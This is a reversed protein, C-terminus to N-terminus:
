VILLLTVITGIWSCRSCPAWFRSISNTNFIIHIVIITNLMYIKWVYIQLKVLEETKQLYKAFIQHMYVTKPIKSPENPLWLLPLEWFSIWPSLKSISIWYIWNLALAVLHKDIFFKIVKLLNSYRFKIFIYTVQTFRDSSIYCVQEINSLQIYTQFSANRYVIQNKVLLKM